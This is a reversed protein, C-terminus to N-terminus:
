QHYNVISENHALALIHELTEKIQTNKSKTQLTIFFIEKIHILKSLGFFRYIYKYQWLKLLMHAAILSSQRISIPFFFSYYMESISQIQRDILKQIKNPYTKQNKQM